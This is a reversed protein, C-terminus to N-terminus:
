GMKCKKCTVNEKVTTSSISVTMDTGCLTVAEPLVLYHYIRNM